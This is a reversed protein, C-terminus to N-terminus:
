IQAFISVDNTADSRLRPQSALTLEIDHELPHAFFAQAFSQADISPYGRHCVSAYLRSWFWDCTDDSGSYFSRTASQTRQSRKARRVVVGTLVYL